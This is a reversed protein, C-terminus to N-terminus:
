NIRVYYYVNVENEKQSFNPSHTIGYYKALTSGEISRGDCPAYISLQPNFDESQFLMKNLQEWNLVSAIVVGYESRSTKSM